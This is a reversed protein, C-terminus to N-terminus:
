DRLDEFPDNHKFYTKKLWIHIEGFHESQEIWIKKQNELHLLSNFTIIKEKKSKGM